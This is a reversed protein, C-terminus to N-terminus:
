AGSNALTIRGVVRRLTWRRWVSTEQDDDSSAIRALRAQRERSAENQREAMRLKAMDYATLPDMNGEQAAGVPQDLASTSSPIRAAPPRRFM